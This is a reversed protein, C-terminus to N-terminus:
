RDSLWNNLHVIGNFIDEMRLGCVLKFWAPHRRAGAHRYHVMMGATLSGM